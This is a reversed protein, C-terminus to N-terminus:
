LNEDSVEVIVDTISCDYLRILQLLKDITLVIKGNEYRWLTSESVGIFNAVQQLTLHSNRRAQKLLSISLTEMRAGGKLSFMVTM